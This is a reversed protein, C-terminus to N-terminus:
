LCGFTFDLIVRVALIHPLSPSIYDIDFRNVFGLMSGLYLVARLTGTDARIRTKGMRIPKQPIRHRLRIQKVLAALWFHNLIAINHLAPVIDAHVVCEPHAALLHILNGVFIQRDSVTKEMIKEFASVREKSKADETAEAMLTDYIDQRYAEM